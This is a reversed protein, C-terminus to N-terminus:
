LLQNNSSKPIGYIQTLFVGLAVMVMGVVMNVWIPEILFILGLIAVQITMTNQLATTEFTGVKDIISNWLLYAFATTFVGLIIILSFAECLITSDSKLYSIPDEIVYSALLSLIGGVTMAILTQTLPDKLESSTKRTTIQYLGWAVGSGVTLFLGLLESTTIGAKDPRLLFFILSGSIAIVLGVVQRFDITRKYLLLLMLAVIVPNFSSILSSYAANLRGYNPDMGLYRLMPEMMFGSAGMILLALLQHRNIVILRNRYKQKNKVDRIIWVVLLILSGVLYRSSVFFIPPIQSKLGLRIFVYSSSWLFTVLLALLIAFLNKPEHATESILNLDRM